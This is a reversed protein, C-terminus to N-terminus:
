GDISRLLAPVRETVTVLVRRTTALDDPDLGGYLESTAAGVIKQLRRYETEGDPTLEVQVATEDGSSRTQRVFGRSQLHQLLALITSGDVDLGPGLVRVLEVRSVSPGRTAVANLTVFPAFSTGAEALLVDLLKRTARAAVNIDQGTVPPATTITTTMTM